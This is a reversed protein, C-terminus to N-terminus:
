GHDLGWIKEHQGVFAGEVGGEDVDELGSLSAHQRVGGGELQREFVHLLVLYGSPLSPLLSLPLSPPGSPRRRLVNM